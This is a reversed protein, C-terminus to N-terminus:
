FRKTQECADHAHLVAARFGEFQPRPPGRFAVGADVYAVHGGRPPIAKGETGEDVVESGIEHSNPPPALRLTPYKPRQGRGMRTTRRQKKLCVCAAERLTAKFLNVLQIKVNNFIM